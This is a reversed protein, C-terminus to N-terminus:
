GDSSFDPKIFARACWFPNCVAQRRRAMHKAAGPTSVSVTTDALRPQSMTINVEAINPRNFIAVDKVVKAFVACAAVWEMQSLDREPHVDEFVAITQRGCVGLSRM